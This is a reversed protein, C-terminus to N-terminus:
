PQHSTKTLTVELNLKGKPVARQKSSEHQDLGLDPTHGQLLFLEPFPLMDQPQSMPCPLSLMRSIVPAVNWSLDLPATM